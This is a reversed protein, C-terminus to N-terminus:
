LYAPAEVTRADEDLEMHDSLSEPVKQKLFWILRLLNVQSYGIV